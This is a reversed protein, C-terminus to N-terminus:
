NAVPATQADDEDANDQDTKKASRFKLTKGKLTTDQIRQILAKILRKDGAAIILWPIDGSKWDKPALKVPEGENDSLREDLEESVSAWLVVALPTIFGSKKVQGEAIMFQGTTIAPVVVEELNSLPMSKFQPTRMLLGVIEGFSAQLRKSVTARKQLEAIQEPSPKDQGGDEKAKARAVPKAEDESNKSKFFM